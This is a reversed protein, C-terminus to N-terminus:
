ELYAEVSRNHYRKITNNDDYLLYVELGLEPHTKIFKKSEELGIVMFVTAYADSTSCNNSIVTASLLAHEVPYGTRPDITHAYKKGDKIYFKRYNGSTAIAKNSISLVNELQRVGNSSTDEKPVDIGIKWKEGSRNTGKVRMEGGIEVYFNKHGRSSIFESLVDVSLGQAIANFDLKFRKDKKSSRILNGDFEISHFKDNEFSVFKLISDVMSKSLPTELNKMFGWGEVLPFVSPDFAGESAEYVLKSEEYCRKFYGTSDILEILTESQNLKSIISSDVYTSLSMDFSALISKIEANTFNAKDEALIIQYTTGQTEGQFVHGEIEKVENSSNCSTLFLIFFLSITSKCIRVLQKRKGFMKQQQNIM